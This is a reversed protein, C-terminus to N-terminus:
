FGDLVPNKESLRAADERTEEEEVDPVQYKTVVRRMSHYVIEM